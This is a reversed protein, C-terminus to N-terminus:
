ASGRTRRSISATVDQLRHLIETGYGSFIWQSRGGEISCLLYTGHEFQLRIGVIYCVLYFISTLVLRSYSTGWLHTTGMVAEM